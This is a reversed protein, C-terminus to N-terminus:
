ISMKVLLQSLGKAKAEKIPYFRNAKDRTSYNILAYKNKFPKLKGNVFDMINLWLGLIKDFAEELTLVPQLGVKVLQANMQPLDSFMENAAAYFERRKPGTIKKNGPM